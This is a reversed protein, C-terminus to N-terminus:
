ALAGIFADASEPGLLPTVDAAADVRFTILAGLLVGLAPRTKASAGPEGRDQGAALWLPM